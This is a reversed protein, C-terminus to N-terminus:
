SPKRKLKEGIDKFQKSLEEELEQDSSEVIYKAGLDEVDEKSSQSGEEEYEVEDITVNQHKSHEHYDDRFPDKFEEDVGKTAERQQRVMEKSIQMTAEMKPSKTLPPIPLGVVVQAMTAQVVLNILM